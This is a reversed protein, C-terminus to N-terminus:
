LADPGYAALISDICMEAYSRTREPRLGQRELQVMADEVAKEWIDPHDREWAVLDEDSMARVEEQGREREQVGSPKV